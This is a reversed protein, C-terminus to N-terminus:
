MHSLPFITAPDVTCFRLLSSEVTVRISYLVPNVLSNACFLLGFSYYLRCWIGLLIITFSPVSDLIRFIPLWPRKSKTLLLATWTFCECLEFLMLANEDNTFSCIFLCLLDRFNTKLKQKTQTGWPKKYLNLHFSDQWNSCQQSVKSKCSDNNYIVQWGASVHM